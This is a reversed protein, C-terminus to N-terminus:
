RQFSRTKKRHKKSGLWFARSYAMTAAVAADIHVNKTPKALKIGHGGEVTQAAYIHKTMDPNDAHTLKNDLAAARFEQLAKPMRSGSQPFQTTPVGEEEIIQLTRSWGWPDATLERVKYKSAIELIRDEVEAHSVEYDPDHEGFWFGVLEMHPKPSVSAMVLVTCDWRHSGDLALIVPSGEPIRVGPRACEQWSEAPMFSEGSQEVWIGMRARKWEAQSTKPPAQARVTAEDLFDGMAPNAERIADWDDLATKPDCGYEVLSITPDGARASQVLDWFPSKERMLPTSPTGIGVLKSGARKLSLLMAEYVTRETFGMEDIIGLTIDEGEVASQESALALLTSDTGPLYIKDKFLQVRELLEPSLEVMRIATKLLRTASQANQAVIVVRAGEGGMFLNFLGLAAILGSKGNGRPISILHVKTEEEFLPRVSDTQWDRLKFATKAGEGRPIKLYRSCFLRFKDVGQSRTRWELPETSVRAKPGARM